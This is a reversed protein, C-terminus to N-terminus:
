ENKLTEELFTINDRAEEFVWDPCDEPILELYKKAWKLAKEGKGLYSYCMALRQAPINSYMSLDVWWYCFPPNGIKLAAYRYFQLAEEYQKDEFALDGLWIWHETRSWDDEVCRILVERVKKIDKYKAHLKALMLRAHYRAAGNKCLQLFKELNCIGRRSDEIRWEQGLYFLSNQNKNKFWDEMLNKRNQVKRQEHRAKSRDATRDHLTIIEPLHVAFAKKPYNLTNHTARTYRFDPHNICLWPFGWRQNSGTRWVYGVKAEEPMISMLNLMVDQGESLSEHAETMFIWDGTCKDMCQNRIHAFHVGKEPINADEPGQPNELEFVIEAYKRAIEETKDKSRPDIGVIIEDAIGRFSALTREIDDAEDRAPTCVSLKYGKNLGCVALLYSGICEVRVHEFFKHLYTKFKLATFKITHQPEEDPGLRDNPVSFLCINNQCARLLNQRATESLHELLETSVIYPSDGNTSEEIIQRGIDDELNILHTDLGVERAQKLASPSHDWIQVECERKEKLISGLIGVGGGLDIIKSKPPMLNTIRNYTNALAEGRWSDHGENEWLKNWKNVSNAKRAIDEVHAQSHM